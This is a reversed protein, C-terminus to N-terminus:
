NFHLRRVVQHCMSLKRSTYTAMGMNLGSVTVSTSGTSIVNVGRMASIAELDVSLAGSISGPRSLLSMSMRLSGM